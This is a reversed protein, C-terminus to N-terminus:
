RRRPQLSRDVVWNAIKKGHRAGIVVADRFHYGVYIRSIANERAAQSFKTFHRMTPSADACTEGAPLTASCASFRMKDTHFFRALAQAGAGAEVAHGSDYDPIPPTPLLPTWTPDATTRPNGDTDALRIATVPRWFLYHYKTEFTGIYGDALAMNLLAFLRASQWRGLGERPALTRAIRNWMQPSSEVWFLAIETQQGTRASPTTVDDGGLRQIENVDAAYRRGTVPLPPGPRFQAGRRLVFPTMDTGLHVSFTFPFGPVYRYEGPETGEQFTPDIPPSDHGDGARDKLIATAARRGLAIGKMKAPGSPMRDLAARYDRKMSAVGASICDPDLFFSYSRLVPVLVRRAASAVAADRSTWPPAQLRAAYPRSRRDIGNLADHIALDTMAYMRAEMPGYGGVSCAAVAAKAANANWRVVSDPRAKAAAVRPLARGSAAQDVAQGVSLHASPHAAPHAPSSTATVGSSGVVLGVVVAATLLGWDRSRRPRFSFHSSRQM